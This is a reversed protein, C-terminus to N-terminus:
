GVLIYVANAALRADILASLLSLSAATEIFITRETPSEPRGMWTQIAQFGRGM